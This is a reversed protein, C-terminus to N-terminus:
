VSQARLVHANQNLGIRRQWERHAIENAGCWDIEHAENHRYTIVAHTIPTTFYGTHEVGHVDKIVYVNLANRHAPRMRMAVASAFTGPQMWGEVKREGPYMMSRIYKSISAQMPPQYGRGGCHNCSREDGATNAVPLRGNGKCTTCLEFGAPLAEGDHEKTM